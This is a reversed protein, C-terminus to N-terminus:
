VRSEGKELIELAQKAALQSAQKKSGGQGKAFVEDKVLVAVEFVRNHDPGNTSTVEYVPTYKYVDQAREQFLTKYDFSEQVQKLESLTKEYMKLILDSAVQLGADLYVAGIYAEVVSALLRPKERGGTAEEGKGLKLAKNFDFQYAIECLTNENVLSARQRSLVGETVSDQRNMLIESMVLSLVSDGLFEFRENQQPTKNPNEFFWSKHTFAIEELEPNAFVHLAKFKNTDSTM